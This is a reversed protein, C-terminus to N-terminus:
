GGAFDPRWRTQSPQSASQEAFENISSVSGQRTEKKTQRRSQKGARGLGLPLSGSTMRCAQLGSATEEATVPQLAVSGSGTWEPRDDM